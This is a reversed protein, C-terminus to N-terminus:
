GMEAVIDRARREIELIYEDDAIHKAIKPDNVGTFDGNNKRSLSRIKKLTKYFRLRCHEIGDFFGILDGMYISDIPNPYVRLVSLTAAILCVRGNRNLWAMRIEPSLSRITELGTLHRDLFALLEQKGLTEIRNLAILKSRWIMPAHWPIPVAELIINDILSLQKRLCCVKFEGSLHIDAPLQFLSQINALCNPPIGGGGRHAFVHMDIDNVRDQPHRVASGYIYSGISPHNVMYAMFKSAGYVPESKNGMILAFWDRMVNVSLAINPPLFSRYRDLYDLLCPQIVELVLRKATYDVRDLTASSMDM